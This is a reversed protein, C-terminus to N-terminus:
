SQMRRTLIRSMEMCEDAADALMALLLVKEETLGVLFSVADRAEDTGHRMFAIQQAVEVIAPLTHIFQAMPRQWSEFRHNAATSAEDCLKNVAMKYWEGFLSSHRIRQVIANPGSIVERYIASIKEKAHWPRTMLWRSAHARDRLVVKLNPAVPRCPPFKQMMRASKAEPSADVCVAELISRIHQNLQADEGAYTDLM